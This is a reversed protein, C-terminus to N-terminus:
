INSNYAVFAPLVWNRLYPDDPPVVVDAHAAMLVQLISSHIHLCNKFDLRGRPNTELFERLKEAEESSCTEQFVVGTEMYTIPM